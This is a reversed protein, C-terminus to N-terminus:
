KMWDTETQLLLTSKKSYNWRISKVKVYVALLLQNSADDIDRGYVKEINVMREKIVVPLLM